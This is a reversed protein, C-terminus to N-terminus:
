SDLNRGLYEVPIEVVRQRNWPRAWGGRDLIEDLLQATFGWVFLDPLLFAPGRFGSPHLAQARNAPDALDSMAVRSIGAVEGPDVIGLPASGDWSGVVTTVSNSSVAVLTAPLTGIITVAAPPLGVEEHAERLATAIIDADQPDARGGPLSVQGAHHHLHANRRTLVIDPRDTDSILALVASRRARAPATRPRRHASAGSFHDPSEDGNTRVATALRSLEGDPRVPGATGGRLATM